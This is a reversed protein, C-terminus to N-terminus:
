EFEVVDENSSIAQQFDAISMELTKFTFSCSLCKRQRMNWTPYLKYKRTELVETKEDCEPCNM